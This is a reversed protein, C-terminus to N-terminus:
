CGSVCAVAILCVISQMWLTLKLGFLRVNDLKMFHLMQANCVRLIEIVLNVNLGNFYALFLSVRNSSCHSVLLNFHFM